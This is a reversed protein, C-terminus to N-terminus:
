GPSQVSPPVAEAIVSPKPTERLKTLSYIAFLLFSLEWLLFGPGFFAVPITGGGEDVIFPNLTLTQLGVCFAVISLILSNRYKEKKAAGWAFFILPNALWPIIGVLLGSWGTLLLNYGFTNVSGGTLIIGPVALSGLYTAVAAYLLYKKM